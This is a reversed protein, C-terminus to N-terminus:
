LGEMTGQKQSRPWRHRVGSEGPEEQTQTELVGSGSVKKATGVSTESPTMFSGEGRGTQVTKMDGVQVEEGTQITELGDM